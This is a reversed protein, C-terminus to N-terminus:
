TVGHFRDKLCSLELWYGLFLVLVFSRVEAMVEFLFM